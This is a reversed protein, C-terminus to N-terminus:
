HRALGSFTLESTYVAPLHVSRSLSNSAHALRDAQHQDQQKTGGRKDPEHGCGIFRLALHRATLPQPRVVCAVKVIRRKGFRRKTELGGVFARVLARVRSASRRCEGGLERRRM